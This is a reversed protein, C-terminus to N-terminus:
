LISCSARSGYSSRDCLAACLAVHLAVQLAVCPTACPTGSSRPTRAALAASQRLRLGQRPAGRSRARRVRAYHSVKGRLAELDREVTHHAALALEVFCASSSPRSIRLSEFRAHKLLYRAHTHPTHTFSRLDRVSGAWRHSTHAIRLATNRADTLTYNAYNTYYKIPQSLFRPESGSIRVWTYNIKTKPTVGKCYYLM